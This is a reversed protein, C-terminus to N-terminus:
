QDALRRWHAPCILGRGRQNGFSRSHSQWRKGPRSRKRKIHRKFQFQSGADRARPRLNLRHRSVRAGYLDASQRRDDGGACTFHETPRLTEPSRAGRVLPVFRRSRWVCVAFRERDPVPADFALPQCWSRSAIRDRETPRGSTGAVPEGCERVRHAPCVRGRGAPDM